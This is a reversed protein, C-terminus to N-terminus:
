DDDLSISYEFLEAASYHTACDDCVLCPKFGDYKGAATDIISADHVTANEWNSDRWVNNNCMACNGISEGHEM